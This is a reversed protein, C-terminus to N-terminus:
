STTRNLQGYLERAVKELSDMNIGEKEMEALISPRYDMPIGQLVQSMLMEETINVYTLHMYTSRINQLEDFMTSPDDQANKVKCAQIMRNVEGVAMRDDPQFRIELDELVKYALGNPWARSRSRHIYTLTKDMEFALCLCAMTIENQELFRAARVGEPSTKVSLELMERESSELWTPKQLAEAFGNLVAHSRFKLKFAVYDKKLGSFKPGEYSRFMM